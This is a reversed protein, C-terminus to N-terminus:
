YEGLKVNILRWVWQALMNPNIFILQSTEGNLFHNVYNEFGQQCLDNNKYEFKRDMIRVHLKAMDIIKQDRVHIIYIDIVPPTTNRLMDDQPNKGQCAGDIKWRATVEVIHSEFGKSAMRGNGGLINKKQRNIPKLTPIQGM